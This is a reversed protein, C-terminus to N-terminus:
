NLEALDGESDSDEDSSRQERDGGRHARLAGALLHAGYPLLPTDRQRDAELVRTLQNELVARDAISNEIVPRVVAALGPAPMTGRDASYARGLQGVAAVADLWSEETLRE